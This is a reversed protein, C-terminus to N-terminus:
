AGFKSNAAGQIACSPTSISTDLLDVHRHFILLVSCQGVRQAFRYACNMNNSGYTLKIFFHIERGFYSSDVRDYLRSYGRVELFFLGVTPLSIYPM